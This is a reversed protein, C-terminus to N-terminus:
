LTLTTKNRIALFRLFVSITFFGGSNMRNASSLPHRTSFSSTQSFNEYSPEDIDMSEADDHEDLDLDTELDSESESDAYAWIESDENESLPRRSAM